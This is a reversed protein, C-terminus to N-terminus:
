MHTCSEIGHMYTEHMDLGKPDCAYVCCVCVICCKFVHFLSVYRPLPAQMGRAQLLRPRTIKPMTATITHMSAKRVLQALSVMAAQVCM